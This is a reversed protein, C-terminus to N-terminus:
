FQRSFFKLMQRNSILSERWEWHNINFVHQLHLGDERKWILTEFSQGTQELSAALMRTQEHLSENESGILLLPPLAILPAAM